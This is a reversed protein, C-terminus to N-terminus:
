RVSGLGGLDGEWGNDFSRPRYKESWRYKNTASHRRAKSSSRASRLPDFASFRDWRESALTFLTAEWQTMGNKKM